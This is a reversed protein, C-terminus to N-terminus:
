IERLNAMVRELPAIFVGICYDSVGGIWILKEEYITLGCGFIVANRDGYIENLGNPALLYDSVALLKGEGNLLAFGNRYSLDEKLVGHWGVIYRDESLRVANTSWGVKTEWEEPALVPYLNDASVTLDELSLKGRWCALTEKVKLRLLMNVSGKDKKLFASDKCDPVWIEGNEGKVTLYGLKKAKHFPLETAAVAQVSLKVLKGDEYYHKSGTYLVYYKKGVTEVRADECGHGFEWLKDPYILIRTEIPKSFSGELLEEMSLPFIGISSNYTYYDFVLRPFIYITDGILVAGPNFATLPAERLYNVVRLDSSKIYCIREFIDNLKNRRLKRISGERDLYTRYLIEEVSM